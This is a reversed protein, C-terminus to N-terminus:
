RKVALITVLAYGHARLREGVDGQQRRDARRRDVATVGDGVRRQARRRDKVVQVSEDGEFTRLLSRYLSDQDAAVVFVLRRSKQM